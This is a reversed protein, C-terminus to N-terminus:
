SGETSTVTARTAKNLRNNAAKLASYADALEDNAYRVRRQAEIVAEQAAVIEELSTM